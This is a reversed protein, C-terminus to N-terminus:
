EDLLATLQARLEDAKAQQELKSGVISRIDIDLEESKRALDSCHQRVQDRYKEKRMLGPLETSWMWSIYEPSPGSRPPCEPVNPLDDDPTSQDRWIRLRSECLKRVEKVTLPDRVTM